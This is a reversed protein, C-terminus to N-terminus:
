LEVFGLLKYYNKLNTPPIIYMNNNEMTFKEEEKTILEEHLKECKELGIIEINNEDRGAKKNIDKAFNGINIIPMKLIFIEGGKSIDLTGIILDVAEEIKMMFRTANMDTVTLPVNRKIQDEFIPLISGSSGIVNGFRISYFISKGRGKYNEANIILKEGLLKTAGMVNIPNVAKDTSIYIVKEISEKIVLDIINQTGIVNTKVADVPNEECFSVHKLAATHFIIDIGRMAIQLREKDRIDGLLLKIKKNGRYLQKLNHLKLENNDFIRVEEINYNLLKSLIALGISGAGTIFIKKNELYNSMKKKLDGTEM